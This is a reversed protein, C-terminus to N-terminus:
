REEVALECGLWGGLLVLKADLPEKSNVSASRCYANGEPMLLQRHLKYFDEM